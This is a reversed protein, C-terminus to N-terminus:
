VTPNLLFDSSSQSHLCILAMQKTHYCQRPSPSLSLPKLSVCVVGVSGKPKEKMLFLSYKKFYILQESSQVSIHRRYYFLINVKQLIMGIYEAGEMIIPVGEMYIHTFIAKM